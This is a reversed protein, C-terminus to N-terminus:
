ESLYSDPVLIRGHHELRFVPYEIKSPERYVLISERGSSKRLSQAGPWATEVEHIYAIAWDGINKSPLMCDSTVPGRFPMERPVQMLMEKLFRMVEKKFPKVKDEPFNAPVRFADTYNMGWMPHNNLLAIENGIFQGNGAFMDIYSLRGKQFTYGETQILGMPTQITIPTSPRGSAYSNRKSECIFDQLEEFELEGAEPHVIKM